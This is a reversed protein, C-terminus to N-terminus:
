SSSYRQVEGCKCCKWQRSGMTERIRDVQAQQQQLFQAQNAGPSQLPSVMDPTLNHASAVFANWSKARGGTLIAGGLHSAVAEGTTVMADVGLHYERGCRKCRLVLRDSVGPEDQVPVSPQAPAARAENVMDGHSISHLVSKSVDQRRLLVGVNQGPGAKGIKKQFEEIEQVVAQIRQGQKTVIEVADGAQLVGSQVTGTVLPGRTELWFTDDIMMQFRAVDAM